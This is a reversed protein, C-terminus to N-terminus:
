MPGQYWPEAGHVAIGGEMYFYEVNSFDLGECELSMRQAGNKEYQTLYESDSFLRYNEYSQCDTMSGYVTLTKTDDDWQYSYWHENDYGGIQYLSLQFEEGTPAATGEPFQAKLKFEITMPFLCANYTVLDPELAADPDALANDLATKPSPVDDGVYLTDTMDLYSLEGNDNKVIALREGGPTMVEIPYNNVIAIQYSQGTPSVYHSWQVMAVSDFVEQAALQARDPVRGSEDGLATVEERTIANAALGVGFYTFDETENKFKFLGNSLHSGSYNPYKLYQIRGTDDLDDTDVRFNMFAARNLPYLPKLNDLCEALYNIKNRSNGQPLQNQVSGM